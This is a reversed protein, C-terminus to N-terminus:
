LYFAMVSLACAILVSVGYTQGIRIAASAKTTSATPSTTATSTAMMTSTATTTAVAVYDSANSSGCIYTANCQQQAALDNANNQMCIGKGTTCLEWPITNEYYALAPASHNSSCICTYNLTSSDCSQADTTGSCLDGCATNQGVCWASLITPSEQQIIQDVLNKSFNTTPAQAATFTALLSTVVFAISSRM